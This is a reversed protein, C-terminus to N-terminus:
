LAESRSFKRSHAKLHESTPHRAGKCDALSIDGCIPCPGKRQKVFEQCNRSTFSSILHYNSCIHHRYKSQSWVRDEASPDNDCQFCRVDGEPIPTFNEFLFAMRERAQEANSIQEEGLEGAEEPFGLRINPENNQLRLENAKELLDSSQRERQTHQIIDDEDEGLLEERTLDVDGENGAEISDIVNAVKQVEDSRRVAPDDISYLPALTGCINGYKDLRKAREAFTLTARVRDKTEALFRQRGRRLLVKKLNKKKKLCEVLKEEEDVTMVPFADKFNTATISTNPYKETLFEILNQLDEDLKMYEESRLVFEEAAEEIIFPLNKDFHHIAPATSLRRAKAHDKKLDKDHPLRAESFDLGVTGQDYPDTSRGGGRHGVVSQAFKKGYTHVLHTIAERRFCYLTPPRGGLGAKIAIIQMSCHLRAAAMPKRTLERKGPISALFVPNDGVARNIKLAVLCDPKKIEDLLEDYSAYALYGREIALIPLTITLDAVVHIGLKRKTFRVPFEDLNQVSLKDVGPKYPDRRGKLHAFNVIVELDGDEGVVFSIDRWCMYQDPYAETWGISGSRVGTMLALQWLVISQKLMDIGDTEAMATEFLLTFEELGYYDKDRKRTELQHELALHHIHGKVAYDWQIHLTSFGPSRLLFYHTLSTQRDYLSSARMTRRDIMEGQPEELDSLLLSMYTKTYEILKETEFCDAFDIEYWNHIFDCYELLHRQYRLATDRAIPLHFLSDQIERNIRESGGKEKFAKIQKIRELAKDSRRLKSFYNNIDNASM